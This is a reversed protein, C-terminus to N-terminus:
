HFVDFIGDTNIAYYARLETPRGEDSTGMESFTARRYAFDGELGIAHHKALNLRGGLTTKSVTENAPEEVLTAQIRYVRSTARLEGTGKRGLKIEALGALGPGRHYDRM